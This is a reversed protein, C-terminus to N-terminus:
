AKTKPKTVDEEEHVPDHHRHPGHGNGNSDLSRDSLYQYMKWRDDVDRQAERLPHCALQFCSLCPTLGVPPLKYYAKWIYLQENASLLNDIANVALSYMSHEPDVTRLLINTDILYSM